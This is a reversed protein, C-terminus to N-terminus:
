QEIWVTANGEIGLREAEADSLLEAAAIIGEPWQGIEKAEYRELVEDNVEADGIVRGTTYDRIEATTTTM